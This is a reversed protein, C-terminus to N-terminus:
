SGPQTKLLQTLAIRLQAFKVPKHLLRLKSENIKRLIEPDTDGSILLAPIEKGLALRISEICSLGTQFNPLRYDSVLVDPCAGSEILELAGEMSSAGSFECSWQEAMTKMANLISLEDDVVMIHHGAIPRSIENKTVSSYNIVKNLQGERIQLTFCTGVKTDSVVSISHDLMSCLRKVISLGLGLGKSRDREPNNLQYFESYINETEHEPIGSGSDQVSINIADGDQESYLHIRGTNTHRLANSLLNRLIRQLLVKDTLAVLDNGEIILELNKEKAELKFETELEKLAETLPFHTLNINIIGADLQSMDLLGNLLQSQADVALQLNDLTGRQISTTLQDQLIGLFLGMTHLPQRLDHSAAALFHSKDKNSKALAQSEAKLDGMLLTNKRQLRLTNIARSCTQWALFLATMLCIISGYGMWNYNAAPHILLVAIYPLMTFLCFGLFVSPVVGLAIALGSVAVMSSVYLATPTAQETLNLFDGDIPNIFLASSSGWVLGIICLSIIYRLHWRKISGSDTLARGDAILRPTMFRDYAFFVTTVVINILLVPFLFRDPVQGRLLFYVMAMVMVNGFVLAPLYHHLIILREPLFKSKPYGTPILSM